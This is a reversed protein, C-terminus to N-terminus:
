RHSMKRKNSIGVNRRRLGRKNGLSWSLVNELCDHLRQMVRAAKLGLAKKTLVPIEDIRRLVADTTLQVAALIGFPAPGVRARGSGLGRLSAPKRSEAFM